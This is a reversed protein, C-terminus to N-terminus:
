YFICKHNICNEEKEDKNKPSSINNHNIKLLPEWILTLQM